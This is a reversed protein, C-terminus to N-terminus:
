SLYDRKAAFHADIKRQTTPDIFGMSKICMETETVSPFSYLYVKEGEQLIFVKTKGGVELLRELKEIRDIITKKM